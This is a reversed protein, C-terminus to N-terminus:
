FFFSSVSGRWTNWGTIHVDQLNGQLLLTVYQAATAGSDYCFAPATAKTQRTSSLARRSRPARILLYIFIYLFPDGIWLHSFVQWALHGEPYLRTEAALFINPMKFFQWRAENARTGDVTAYSCTTLTFGPEASHQWAGVASQSLHHVQFAVHKDVASGYALSECVEICIIRATAHLRCVAVSIFAVLHTMSKVPSCLLM